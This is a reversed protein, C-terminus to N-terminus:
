HLVRTVNKKKRLEGCVGVFSINHNAVFVEGVEKLGEETNRFSFAYTGINPSDLRQAFIV